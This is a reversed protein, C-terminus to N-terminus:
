THWAASRALVCTLDLGTETLTVKEDAMAAAEITLYVHEKDQAWKFHPTKTRRASRPAAVSRADLGRQRAAIGGARIESHQWPSPLLICRSATRAPYEHSSKARRVDGPRPLRRCRLTQRWVKALASFEPIARLAASRGGLRLLSELLVSHVM